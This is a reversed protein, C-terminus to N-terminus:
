QGGTCCREKLGSRPIYFSPGQPRVRIHGVRGHGSGEFPRPPPPEGPPALVAYIEGRITLLVRESLRTAKRVESNRHDDCRRHHTHRERYKAPPQLRPREVVPRRLLFCRRPVHTFLAPLLGSRSCQAQEPRSPAFDRRNRDGFLLPISTTTRWRTAVLYLGLLM